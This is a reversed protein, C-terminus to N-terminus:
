RDQWEAVTAGTVTARFVSRGHTFAYLTTPNQFELAEVVTNAFGPANEQVWTAGGDISSFVGIDTGIWLIGPMGPHVRITHAPIDPLNGTIDTWNAGGNTSRFVHGFGFRSQTAYITNGTTDNPDFELWSVYSGAGAVSGTQQTWNTAATGSLASFNRFVNGNTTGFCVHNSNAPNIGWSSITQGTVSAGAQTWTINAILNFLDDTASSANTTRWPQRGGYWMIEPNSHDLRFPHIFQYSTSDPLNAVADLFTLGGDKSRTMSKRTFEAFVIDPNSPNVEVYGGDGGQISIWGDRGSADTGLLTGNDQTGGFYTDTGSPFARGHYFQTVEYGSNLDNWLVATPVSGNSDYCLGLTVGSGTAALANDTTFVGGDNGIFATQNTTGNWGPHFAIYHQDAHVYGPFGSVWWYSIIGWNAGGDDSRFLDIGGAYVVNPDHPAVAIINDYWGQSLFSDGGGFNCTTLNAIIPNTLLLWKPNSPDFSTPASATLRSGWTAGGDTSRRVDLVRDGNADDAILAYITSQQSPAVALDIRGMDPLQAETFVPSWTLGGDTSRHIGHGTTGSFQGISAFVTPPNLDTRVELDTAGSGSADVFTQTWNAGGDASRFIGTRTAALVVQANNPDAAVKAVFNFNSNATTPLRTWTAGADTSKLIGAGRVSDQNFFSEGTGAYIVNTDLAPGGQGAFTLTGVAINDLLDSTPNWSAGGDTTKWVGGAVGGAYMTNPTSPHILLSRTRGGINGPGLPQWSLSHRPGSPQNKAAAHGRAREMMSYDIPGGTTRKAVYHAMAQEPKDFAQRAAMEESRRQKSLLKKQFRAAVQGPEPTSVGSSPKTATGCAMAASVAIAALLASARRWSPGANVSRCSTRLHTM